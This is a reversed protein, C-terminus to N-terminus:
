EGAHQPYFEFLELPETRQKALAVIQGTHYGMHEVAHFVVGLLDTRYGQVELERDLEKDGLERLIEQCDTVAEVLLALLEDRTHTHDAAFESARRREFPLGGLSRRIWLSLNGHLHLLLNGIANAHPRPRWWVDSESLGATALEIKEFYEGLYRAALETM